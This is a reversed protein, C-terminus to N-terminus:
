GVQFGRYQGTQVLTQARVPGVWKLKHGENMYVSRVRGSGVRGSGVEM